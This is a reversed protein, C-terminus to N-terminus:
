NRKLFHKIREYHTKVFAKIDVKSLFEEVEDAGFELIKARLEQPIMNVYPIAGMACSLSECVQHEREEGTLGPTAQVTTMVQIAAQTALEKATTM